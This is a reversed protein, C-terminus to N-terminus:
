SILKLFKKIDYKIVAANVKFFNLYIALSYLILKFFFEIDYNIIIVNSIYIDCSGFM